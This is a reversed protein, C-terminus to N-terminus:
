NKGQELITDEDNAIILPLGNLKGPESDDSNLNTGNVKSADEEYKTTTISSIFQDGLLNTENCNEKDANSSLANDAEASNHLTGNIETKDAGECRDNNGVEPSVDAVRGTEPNIPKCQVKDAKKEAQSNLENTLNTVQKTADYIFSTLINPSDNSEEDGEFNAESKNDFESVNISRYFFYSLYVRCVRYTSRMETFLRILLVLKVDVLMNPDSSRRSIGNTIISANMLDGYSRTKSMSAGTFNALGDCQIHANLHITNQNGGLSGLYVDTWLTLDRVNYAPWLVKDKHPVYLPNRYMPGSLFPWVSFTREFM